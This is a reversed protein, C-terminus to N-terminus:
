VGIRGVTEAIVASRIDCRVGPETRDIPLFHETPMVEYSNHEEQCGVNVRDRMAGM